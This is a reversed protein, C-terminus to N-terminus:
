TRRTSRRRRVRRDREAGRGHAGQSPAERHERGRGDRPGDQPYVRIVKGEKGKDDGRMVRVTDGKTVHLKVREANDRTASRANSKARDTKKYKLIRM